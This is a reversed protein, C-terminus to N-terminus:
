TNKTIEGTNENRWWFCSKKIENVATMPRKGTLTKIWKPIRASDVRYTYDIGDINLTILGDSSFGSYFVKSKRKTKEESKEEYKKLLERASCLVCQDVDHDTHFDHEKTGEKDNEEINEVLDRLVKLEHKNMM